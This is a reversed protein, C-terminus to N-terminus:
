NHLVPHICKQPRFLDNILRVEHGPSSYNTYKDHQYCIETATQCTKNDLNCIVRSQITQVNRFLISYPINSHRVCSYQRKNSPNIKRAIVETYTHECNNSILAVVLYERFLSYQRTQQLEGMLYIEYGLSSLQGYM